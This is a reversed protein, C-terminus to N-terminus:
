DLTITLQYESDAVASVWSQTQTYIRLSQDSRGREWNAIVAEANFPEGDHFTIGENLVFTYSLGDDSMSWEKALMPVINTDADFTLLSEYMANTVTNSVGNGSVHPDLHTADAQMAVVLDNDPSKATAEAAPEATEETAQETQETNQTTQENSTTGTGGGCASFSLMMIVALLFSLKKM